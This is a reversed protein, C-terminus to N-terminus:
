RAELCKSNLRVLAALLMPSRAVAQVIDRDHICLLLVFLSLSFSSSHTTDAVDRELDKAALKAHEGGAILGFQSIILV